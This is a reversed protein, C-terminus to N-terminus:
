DWDVEIEDADCELLNAGLNKVDDDSWGSVDENHTTCGDVDLGEVRYTFTVVGTMSDIAAKVWKYRESESM